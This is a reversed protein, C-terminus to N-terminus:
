LLVAKYRGSNKKDLNIEMSFLALAPNENHFFIQNIVAYHTPHINEKQMYLLSLPMGAIDIACDPLGSLGMLYVSYINHECVIGNEKVLESIGGKYDIARPTMGTTTSVHDQITKSPHRGNPLACQILGYNGEFRGTQLQLLIVDTRALKSTIKGGKKILLEKTKNGVKIVALVYNNAMGHNM